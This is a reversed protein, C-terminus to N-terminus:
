QGIFRHVKDAAEEYTSALVKFTAVDDVITMDFPIVGRFEIPGDLTVVVEFFQKDRINQLMSKIDTSM